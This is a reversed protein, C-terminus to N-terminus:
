KLIPRLHLTSGGLRACAFNPRRFCDDYAIDADALIKKQSEFLGM